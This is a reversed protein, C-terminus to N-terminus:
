HHAHENFTGSVPDHYKMSYHSDFVDLETPLENILLYNNNITSSDQLFGYLENGTILISDMDSCKWNRVDKKKSYMISALCNAVCQKGSNDGFRRDGQHFSGQAIITGDHKIIKIIEVCKSHKDSENAVCPQAKRSQNIFQIKSKTKLEVKKSEDIPEQNEEVDNGENKETNKKSRLFYGGTQQVIGQNRAVCVCSYKCSLDDVIAFDEGEVAKVKLDETYPVRDAYSMVAVEEVNGDLVPIEFINQDAPIGFDYMLSETYNCRGCKRCMWSVPKNVIFFQVKSFGMCYVHYLISCSDCGKVKEMQGTKHDCMWCQRMEKKRWDNRARSISEKAKLTKGRQNQKISKVNTKCSCKRERHNNTHLMTKSHMSSLVCSLSRRTHSEINKQAKERNRKEEKSMRIEVVKGNKRRQLLKKRENRRVKKRNPKSVKKEHYYEVVCELVNSRSCCTQKRAKFKSLAKSNSARRRTRMNLKLKKIRKRRQEHWISNNINESADKEEDRIKSDEKDHRIKSDEGKGEEDRMDSECNTVYMYRGELIGDDEDEHKDEISEDYNREVTTESKIEAKYETNMEYNYENRKCLDIEYETSDLIECIKGM